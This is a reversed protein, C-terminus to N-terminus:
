PSTAQQNIIVVVVGNDFFVSDEAPWGSRGAAASRAQQQRQTDTAPLYRPDVMRFIWERSWPAHRATGTDGRPNAPLPQDYIVVIPQPYTLPIDQEASINEIRQIIRNTAMLDVRTSLHTDFAFKNIQAATDFLFVAAIGAVAWTGLRKLRVLNCDCLQDISFAVWFGHLLALAILSRPPFPTNVGAFALAFAAFLSVVILALTVLWTVVSRRQYCAVLYCVLFLAFIGLLPRTWRWTIYFSDSQQTLFVVSHHLFLAKIVEANEIFALPSISMRGSLEIGVYRYALTTVAYYVLLSAVLGATGSAFQKLAYQWHGRLCTVLAFCLLLMGAVQSAAPYLAPALAMLVLGIVYRRQYWAYVGGLACVNALPYAVRTSDFDFLMGYYISISSVLLFAYTAAHHRFNLLRAAFWNSLLLLASGVASYFLGGPNNDQLWEFVMYYGWRGQGVFTRADQSISQIQVVDDANLGPVIAQYAYVLVILLYVWCLGGPTLSLRDIWMDKNQM